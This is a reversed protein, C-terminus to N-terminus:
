AECAWGSDHNLLHDSFFNLVADERGLVNPFVLFGRRLLEDSFASTSELSM